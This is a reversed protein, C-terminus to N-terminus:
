WRDPSICGSVQPHSGAMEADFVSGWWSSQSKQHTYLQTIPPGSVFSSLVAWTLSRRPERVCEPLREGEVARISDALLRPTMVALSLVM